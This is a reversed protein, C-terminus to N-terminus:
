PPQFREHLLGCSLEAATMSSASGGSAVGKVTDSVGVRPSEADESASVVLIEGLDRSSKM